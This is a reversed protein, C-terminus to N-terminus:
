NSNHNWQLHSAVTWTMESETNYRGVSFLHVIVISSMSYHIYLPKVFVKKDFSAHNLQVFRASVAAFYSAHSSFVM